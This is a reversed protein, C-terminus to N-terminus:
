AQSKPYPPCPWIGANSRQRLRGSRLQGAGERTCAPPLFAKRGCIWRGGLCEQARQDDSRARKCFGIIQRNTLHGTQRIKRMSMRQAHDIARGWHAITLCHRRARWPWTPVGNQMLRSILWAGPWRGQRYVCHHSAQTSRRAADALQSGIM